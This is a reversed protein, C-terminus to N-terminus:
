GERRETVFNYYYLIPSESVVAQQLHYKWSDMDDGIFKTDGFVCKAFSKDFLVDRLMIIEGDGDEYEIWVRNRLSKTDDCSIFFDKSWMELGNWGREVAYEIVIQLMEANTKM